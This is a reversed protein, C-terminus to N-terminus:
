KDMGDETGDGTAEEPPSHWLEMDAAASEQDYKAYQEFQEASLIKQMREMMFRRYLKADALIRAMRERPTTATSLKGEDNIQTQVETLANLVQLEQDESLNFKRSFYYADREVDELDSRSFAKRQEDRIVKAREEGLIQELSSNAAGQDHRSEYMEQLAEKELDDLTLLRGVAAVQMAAIRRQRDEQSEKEKSHNSSEERIPSHRHMAPDIPVIQKEKSHSELEDKAEELNQSLEKVKVQLLRLEENASELQETKSRMELYLEEHSNSYYVLGGLSLFVVLVLLVSLVKVM